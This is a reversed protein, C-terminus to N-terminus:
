NQFVERAIRLEALSKSHMLRDNQSAVAAFFPVSTLSFIRLVAVIFQWGSLSFNFVVGPLRM